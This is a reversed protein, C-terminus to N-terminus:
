DLIVKRFTLSVRRSRAVKQGQYPDSRRAPIGHKWAYRAQDQLILLSGPELFLSEKEKPNKVPSFEMRCASGLSLSAIEHEFCPECDVHLSIGQGPQYENVILQDPAAEQFCYGQLRPVMALSGDPLPGLRLSADISRRKYDYKYGYHQVRRQLDGLCDEQDLAQLLEQQQSSDLFEDIYRLGPISPIREAEFLKM